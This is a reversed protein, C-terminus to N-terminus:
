GARQSRPWRPMSPHNFPLAAGRAAWAVQTLAAPIHRPVNVVMSFWLASYGRATCIDWGRTYGRRVILDYMYRGEM